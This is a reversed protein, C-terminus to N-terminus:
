QQSVCIDRGQLLWIITYPQLHPTMPLDLHKFVEVLILNNKSGSDFIFHIPAGKVWMHLHFLREGEEPEELKRLLVKTSSVISRPEVDIIWKGGEPNSESYSDVKSMSDKM